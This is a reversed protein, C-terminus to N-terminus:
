AVLTHPRLSCVVASTYPDAASGSSNTLGDGCCRTLAKQGMACSGGGVFIFFLLFLLFSCRTLDQQLRLLTNPGASGDRVFGGM